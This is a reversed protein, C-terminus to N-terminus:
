RYEWQVIALLAIEILRVAVTLFRNQWNIKALTWEFAFSVIYAAVTFIGLDIWSFGSSSLITPHSISFYLAIAVAIYTIAQPLRTRYHYIGTRLLLDNGYIQIGVGFFLTALAFSVLANFEM